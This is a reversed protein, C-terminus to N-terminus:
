CPSPRPSTTPEGRASPATAVVAYAHTPGGARKGRHYLVSGLSYLTRAVELNEPGLASELSSLAKRGFQEATQFDGRAANADALAQLAMGVELSSEVPRERCIKLATFAADEQEKPLGLREFTHALAVWLAVEVEPRNTLQQALSEATKTLIPGVLNTAEGPQMSAVVGKMGEELLHSIELSKASELQAKKRLATERKEAGLARFAQWTSIAVGAVLLAFVGAAILFTV